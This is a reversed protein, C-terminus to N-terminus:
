LCPTIYLNDFEKAGRESSNEHMDNNSPTERYQLVDNSPDLSVVVSGDPIDKNTTNGAEFERVDVYAATLYCQSDVDVVREYNSETQKNENLSIDHTTVNRVSVWQRHVCKGLYSFALVLIVALIVLMLQWIINIRKEFHDGRRTVDIETSTSKVQFQATQNVHKDFSPFTALPFTSKIEKDLFCFPM